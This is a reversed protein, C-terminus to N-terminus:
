LISARGSSRLLTEPERMCKSIRVQAVARGLENQFVEVVRDVNEMAAVLRSVGVAPGPTPSAMARVDSEFAFKLLRPWVFLQLTSIFTYIDM